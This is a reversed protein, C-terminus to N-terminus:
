RSGHTSPLSHRIRLWLLSPFVLRRMLIAIAGGRSGNTGWSEGWIECHNPSQSSGQAEVQASRGGIARM